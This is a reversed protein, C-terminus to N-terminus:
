QVKLLTSVGGTRGTLNDRVVLRVMYEGPALDMSNKYSIGSQQISPIAEPPLTREVKQGFKAAISGDRARAIGAFELNIKKNAVDVVNASPLVQMVFANSKKDGKATTTTWQGRFPIGSDTLMSNVAIALDRDHTTTPEPIPFLFGNRSRVSGDAAVKVQLKHWGEKLGSSNLYYGVMYYDHSDELADVFCSTLDPRNYCPKGGTAAALHEFTSIVDQNASQVGQKEAMTPSYKHSPDMADYATNQIGRADVPYLAINGSNLLNTTYKDLSSAENVQGFDYTTQAYGARELSQFPYGSSAWVLSKRGPLSALALAIQQLAELSNIRQTRQVFAVQANEAGKTDEMRKLYDAAGQANDEFSPMNAEVEQLRESTGTRQTQGAPTNINKLAIAIAKPDTTFDHILRIGKVEVSMLRVPEGTNAATALFRMLGDRLRMMDIANTNIRDIAIVVYRATEPSGKLENTFEGPEAKARQLRDTTTRIEEFVQVKQEKGDQLITFGEKKLGAVHKGKSRVQVPILVLNTQSRFAPVHDSQEQALNPISSLVLLALVGFVTVVKM